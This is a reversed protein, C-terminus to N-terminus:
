LNTAGATINVLTKLIRSKLYVWECASWSHTIAIFTNWRGFDSRCRSTLTLQTCQIVRLPMFSFWTATVRGPSCYRLVASTSLRTSEAPFMFATVYIVVRGPKGLKMLCIKSLLWWARAPIYTKIIVEHFWLVVDPPTSSSRRPMM